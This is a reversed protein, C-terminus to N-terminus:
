GRVIAASALRFAQDLGVAALSVLIGSRWWLPVPAALVAWAVALVALTMVVRFIWNRLPAGVSIITSQM